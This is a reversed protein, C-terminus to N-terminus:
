WEEIWILSVGDVVEHQEVNYHSTQEESKIIHLTTLNKHVVLVNGLDGLSGEALSDANNGLVGHAGIRYLQGGFYLLIVRQLALLQLFFDWLLQHEDLNQKIIGNAIINSIPSGICCVRLNLCGCTHSLDMVEDHSQWIAVVGFNPLSTRM